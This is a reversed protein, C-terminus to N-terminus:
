LFSHQVSQKFASLSPACVVSEPVSNWLSIVNPLFSYFYSNSRVFPQALLFSRNVHTRTERASFIPPFYCQNYIIKYLHRLSLQARRKHLPPLNAVRLLENYESDWSKFCVRLAFKQINELSEIESKLHPNLVISAYDLHPRIFSKYLRLLCPSNYTSVLVQLSAWYTYTDQQLLKYYSSVM